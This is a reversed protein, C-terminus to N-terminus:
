SKLEGDSGANHYEYLIESYAERLMNRQEDPIARLELFREFVENPNLEAPDEYNQCAFDHFTQAVSNRIRLVEFPADECMANVKDRLGAILEDGTYEVSVWAHSNKLRLETLGAEIEAMNGSVTCLERFVPVEHPIIKCSGSEFEVVNVYKQRKCENFGVPVPSGSYRIYDSGGVKQAAHLHGLAVYDVFAPFANGPFAALGGVYLDRVGEDNNGSAGAAFLHGTVVVPTGSDLRRKELECDIISYHNVLGNLLNQEKDAFAEGEASSRLDRDRLYPVAGVLMEVRGSRNCLEIVEDTLHESAEGTVYVNLRELLAAPAELLSPSDHNGGIVVIHRCDPLASAEALFRYYIEQAANGPMVSDFVDGAIIVINIQEKELLQLLWRVFAEAEDLRRRGCLTAGLHWDSTHLLKLKEYESM